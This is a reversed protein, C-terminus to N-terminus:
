LDHHMKENDIKVAQKAIMTIFKEKRKLVYANPSKGTMYNIIAMGVDTPSEANISKSAMM